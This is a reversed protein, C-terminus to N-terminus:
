ICNEENKWNSGQILQKGDEAEQQRGGYRSKDSIEKM